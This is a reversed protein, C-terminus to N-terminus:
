VDEWVQTETTKAIKFDTFIAPNGYTKWHTLEAQADEVGYSASGVQIWANIRADFAVAAYRVTTATAPLGPNTTLIM